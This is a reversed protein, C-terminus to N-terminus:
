RAWAWRSTDINDIVEPLWFHLHLQRPLVIQDSREEREAHEICSGVERLWRMWLQARFIFDYRADDPNGGGAGGAFRGSLYSWIAFTRCPKLSEDELRALLEPDQEGIFMNLTKLNQDPHEASYKEMAKRMDSGSWFMRTEGRWTLDIRLARVFLCIDTRFLPDIRVQPNDLLIPLIHRHLVSNEILQSPQIMVDGTVSRYYAEALMIWIRRVVERPVSSAYLNREEWEKGGVTEEPGGHFGDANAFSHVSREVWQVDRSWETAKLRDVIQAKRATAWTPARELWAQDDPVLVLDPGEAMPEIILRFSRPEGQDSAEDYSVWRWSMRTAWDRDPTGEIM